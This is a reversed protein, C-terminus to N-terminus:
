PCVSRMRKFLCNTTTTMGRFGKVEPTTTTMGRFGKVKPQAKPTTTTM